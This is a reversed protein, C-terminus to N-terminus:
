AASPAKKSKLLMNVGTYIVVAIIVWTLINMDLGSVFNVALVVGIVGGLTIGLSVKRAYNGTKIFERSAVPMLAACSTMMIPMAVIPSVGLMYIMAMCPAYLGVGATMLAGFVANGIIGIILKFGTLGIATNGTGLMDLWGLQKAGMLLATVILAIGMVLQVKREPMKAVIKSGFISGVAAAIVLSFLTMPEVKVVKVFLIAEVIVPITHAVNLTGPLQRDSELQKTADLALATPAFSGIGLTDLADTIFGIIFAVVWNGKGLDEKNEMIDKIFIVSFYAALIVLLVQIALVVM